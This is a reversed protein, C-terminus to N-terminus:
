RPLQGEANSAKKWPKLSQRASKAQRSLREIVVIDGSALSQAPFIAQM